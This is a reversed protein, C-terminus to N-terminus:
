QIDLNIISLNAIIMMLLAKLPSGTRMCVKGLLWATLQGSDGAGIILVRDGLRTRKGRLVMWRDAFM